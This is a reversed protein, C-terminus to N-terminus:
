NGLIKIAGGPGKQYCPLIESCVRFQALLANGFVAIVPRCLSFGEILLM